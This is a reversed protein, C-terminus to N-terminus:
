LFPLVVINMTYTYATCVNSPPLKSSAEANCRHWLYQSLILSFIEIALVYMLIVKLNRSYRHPYALAKWAIALMITFPAYHVFFCFVRAVARLCILNDRINQLHCVHEASECRLWLHLGSVAGAYFTSFSLNSQM